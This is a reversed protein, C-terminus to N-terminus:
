WNNGHKETALEIWDIWRNIYAKVCSGLIPLGFWASWHYNNYFLATTWTSKTTAVAVIFIGGIPIDRSRCHTLLNICLISIYQFKGVNLNLFYRLRWSCFYLYVFSWFGFILSIKVVLVVWIIWCCSITWSSLHSPFIFPSKIALSPTICLPDFPSTEQLFGNWVLPQCNYNSKKRVLWHEWETNSM